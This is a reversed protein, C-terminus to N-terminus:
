QQLPLPRAKLHMKGLLSVASTGRTLPEGEQHLDCGQGTEVKHGRSVDHQRTIDATVDDTVVLPISQNALPLREIAGRVKSPLDM